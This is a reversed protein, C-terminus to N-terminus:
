FKVNELQDVVKSYIEDLHQSLYQALTKKRFAIKLVDLKEKSIQIQITAVDPTTELTPPREPRVAGARKQTGRPKVLGTAKARELDDHDVMWSGEVKQGKIKKAKLMNIMHSYACGLYKAAEIAPVQNNYGVLVPAKALAPNTM